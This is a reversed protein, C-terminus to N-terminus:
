GGHVGGTILLHPGPASTDIEHALLEVAADTRDSEM